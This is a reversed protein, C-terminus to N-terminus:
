KDKAKGKAPEASAPEELPSNLSADSEQVSPESAPATFIAKRDKVRNFTSVNYIDMAMKDKVAQPANMAELEEFDLNDTRVESTDIIFQELKESWSINFRTGKAIPGPSPGTKCLGHADDQILYEAPTKEVYLALEEKTGSLAYLVRNVGDATKYKKKTYTAYM